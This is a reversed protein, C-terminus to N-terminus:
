WTSQGTLPAASTQGWSRSSTKLCSPFRRHTREFPPLLLPAPCPLTPTPPDSGTESDNSDCLWMVVQACVWVERSTPFTGSSCNHEARWM